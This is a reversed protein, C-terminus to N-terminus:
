PFPKSPFEAAGGCPNLWILWCLLLIAKGGKECQEAGGEWSEDSTIITLATLLPMRAAPPIHCM